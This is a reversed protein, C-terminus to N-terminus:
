AEIDPSIARFQGLDCRHRPMLAELGGTRYDQLWGKITLPSYNRLGQYPVELPDATVKRFYSMAAGEFADNLLPAILGFRFLAVEQRKKDGDTKSDEHHQHKTSM